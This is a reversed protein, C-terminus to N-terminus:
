KAIVEDFSRGRIIPGLWLSNAFQSESRYYGAKWYHPKLAETGKFQLTAVSEIDAIKEWASEGEDRRYVAIAGTSDPAWRIALIFDVWKGLNLESRTLFRRGGLKRNMDGGLVSLSFVDEAHLAVAPSAGFEDPGHLQFFIGWAYSRSNAEPAVWNSALKVSIRYYETGETGHVKFRSTNRWGGLVVESRESTSGLCRDGPLVTFHAVAGNPQGIQEGLRFRDM